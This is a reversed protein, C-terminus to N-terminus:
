YFFFDSFFNLKFLYTGVTFLLTNCYEINIRYKPKDDKKGTYIFESIM